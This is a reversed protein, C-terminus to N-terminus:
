PNKQRVRIKPTTDRIAATTSTVKAAGKEKTAYVSKELANAGKRDEDKILHSYTKYILDISTHGMQVQLRKLADPTSAQHLMLTAYTHRLEHFTIDPLEAKKLLPKYVRNYLNRANIHNGVASPFVLGRVSNPCSEKWKRLRQVINDGLEVTRYSSDSKTDRVEGHNFTRRVHLEASDLDIDSWELGLIEGQRLGTFIALAILTGIKQNKQDAAEILKMAQAHDLHRVHKDERRTNDKPVTPLDVRPNYECYRSRAAHKLVSGLTVITKQVTANSIPKKDKIDRKEAERWAALAELKDAVYQSTHTHKIANVKMKGFFPTLHCEIHQRYQELTTDRVHGKKTELFHQAIAEFTPVERESIYTGKKVASMANRNYEEADAKLKFWKRRRKGLQDYFDVRWRNRAEDKIVSM